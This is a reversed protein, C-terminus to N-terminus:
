KLTTKSSTVLIKGDFVNITYTGKNLNKDENIDLYDCVKLNDNKYNFTTNFSYEIASDEIILVKNNSTVVANNPDLVQVQLTKTSERVLTNKAISYCIKFKTVRRAKSTISEKGSSKVKIGEVTLDLLNLFNAENIKTNLDEKEEILDAKEKELSAYLVESKYLQDKRKNLSYVLLKNDQKLETNERLLNKMDSNLEFQREKLRILARLSPKVTKLSDILAEVELKAEELKIDKEQSNSIAFDYAISMENLKSLVINKETDLENDGKPVPKCLYIGFGFLLLLAFALGKTLQKKNNLKM